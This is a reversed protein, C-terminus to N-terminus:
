WTGHLSVYSNRWMFRGNPSFTRPFVRTRNRTHEVNEWNTWLNSQVAIESSSCPTVKDNEADFIPKQYQCEGGEPTYITSNSVWKQILNGNKQRSENAPYPNTLYCNVCKCAMFCKRSTPASKAYWINTIQYCMKLMTLAFAGFMQLSFQAGKIIEMRNHSMYTIQNESNHLM